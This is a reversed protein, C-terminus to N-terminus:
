VPKKLYIPIVSFADGDSGRELLDCATTAFRERM